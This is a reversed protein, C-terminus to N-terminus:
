PVRTIPSTTARIFGPALFSACRRSSAVLDAKNKELTDILKYVSDDTVKTSSFIM